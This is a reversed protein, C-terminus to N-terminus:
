FPDCVFSVEGRRATVVVNEADLMVGANGGWVGQGGVGGGVGGAGGAGRMVEEALGPPFSVHGERYPLRTVVDEQFTQTGGGMGINSGGLRAHVITPSLRSIFRTPLLSTPDSYIYPGSPTPGAATSTTSQEPQHDVPVALDPQISDLDLDLLGNQEDDEEGGLDSAVEEEAEAEDDGDSVENAAAILADVEETTLTSGVGSAEDDDTAWSFDSGTPTAPRPVFSPSSPDPRSSPPPFRLPNFDRLMICPSTPTFAGPQRTLTRYGDIFTM